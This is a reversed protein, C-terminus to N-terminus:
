NTRTLLSCWNAKGVPVWSFKVDQWDSSFNVFRDNQEEFGSDFAIIKVSNTSYKDGKYLWM